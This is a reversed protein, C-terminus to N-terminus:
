ARRIEGAQGDAQPSRGGVESRVPADVPPELRRNRAIGCGRVHCAPRSDDLAGTVPMALLCSTMPGAMATAVGIKKASIPNSYAHPRRRPRLVYRRFSATFLRLRPTRLWSEFRNVCSSRTPRYVRAHDCAAIQVSGGSAHHTHTAPSM